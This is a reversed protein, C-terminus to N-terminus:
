SGIRALRPEEFREYAHPPRGRQLEGLRTCSRLKM